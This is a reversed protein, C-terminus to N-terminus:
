SKDSFLFAKIESDSKNPLQRALWSLLLSINGTVEDGENRTFGARKAAEALDKKESERIRITLTSMKNEAGQKKNTM